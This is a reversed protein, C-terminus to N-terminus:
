LEAVSPLATTSDESPGAYPPLREHPLLMPLLAVNMLAVFMPPLQGSFVQNNVRSADAIRGVLQVQCSGRFEQSVANTIPVPGHKVQRIQANLDLGATGDSRLYQSMM